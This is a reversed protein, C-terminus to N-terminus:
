RAMGSRFIVMESVTSKMRKGDTTTVMGSEVAKEKAEGKAGLMQPNVGAGGLITKNLRLRNHIQNQIHHKNELWTTHTLFKPGVM